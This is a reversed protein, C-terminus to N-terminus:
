TPRRNLLQEEFCRRGAQWLSVAENRLQNAKAEREQSVEVIRDQTKRDALPILLNEVDENAIRPHTNGTMMHKTQAVVLGTRMVVALYEPRVMHPDKTRMVHFETSCVGEFVARWVKNLYPRLRGYLVDGPEFQFCQGTASEEVNTLQGTNSAVSALGVYRANGPSRVTDRQFSVVAGLSAHPVAHIMRLARIREPHHYDASMNRASRVDNLRAGYGGVPLAGPSPLGLTSIVVDDLSQLLADAQQLHSDRQRAANALEAFLREQEAITPPLPIELLKLEESNVNSMGAIQRSVQDIQMRGADTNLFASVFDPLARAPSLRVRILYSAFVWDGTEHFVESKGVLEKSNTRNFLIDGDELRYRRLGADDLEIHKLDSLDWGFPQLNNMRIM